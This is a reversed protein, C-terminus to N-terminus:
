QGSIAGTATLAKAAINQRRTAIAANINVKRTNNYNKNNKIKNLETNLNGAQIRAILGAVNKVAATEAEATSPEVPINPAAITATKAPGKAANIAAQLEAIKKNKEAGSAAAAQTALKLANRLKVNAVKHLANVLAANAQNQTLNTPAGSPPPPANPKGGTLRALM